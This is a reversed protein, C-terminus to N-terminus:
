VKFFVLKEFRGDQYFIGKETMVVFELNRGQQRQSLCYVKAADWKAQNKIFTECATKYHKTMKKPVKPPFCEAHPKIEVIYEKQTGGMELVKMYFDPFYRHISGGRVPCRYPITICESSWGLVSSHKDLFSSIFSIEWGSRATITKNESLYKQPNQLLSYM